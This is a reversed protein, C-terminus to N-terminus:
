SARKFNDKAFAIFFLQLLSADIEIFFDWSDGLCCKELSELDGCNIIELAFLSFYYNDRKHAAIILIIATEQFSRVSNVDEKRPSLM